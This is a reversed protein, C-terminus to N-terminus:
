GAVIGTTAEGAGTAEARRPFQRLSATEASNGSAAARATMLAHAMMLIYRAGVLESCEVSHAAHQVFTALNTHRDSNRVRGIEEATRRMAQVVRVSARRPLRERDLVSLWEVLRDGYDEFVPMTVVGPRATKRRPYEAGSTPQNKRAIVSRIQWAERATDIREM